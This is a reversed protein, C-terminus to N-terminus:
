AHENGFASWGERRNRAFLEIRPLQPYMSEIIRYVQEPKQSHKERSSRILSSPRNPPEPPPISGRTGVLLLESQQRFWYGMGIKKKDWVACTKYTFGWRALVELGETLKPATTWLFLVCDPTALQDVPMALIADLSMTPYQNDLDRNDSGSFEYSWPPDAYIVPYQCTTDLEANGAAQQKLKEIRQERRQKTEQQRIARAAAKIEAPGRAVIDDQEEPPLTAIKAAASISTDKNDMADILSSSGTEVVSKAQEFTTHNNFGAQKSAIDRTKDGEQAQAFNQVLENSSKEQYQNSGVRGNLLDEVAKGIEVRESVTFDKRIANEAFEGLIIQEMPVIRAPIKDRGLLEFARLRREGWILQYSPNIGIPQLLELEKISDALAQLDGMDKRCRDGVKITAIQVDNIQSM